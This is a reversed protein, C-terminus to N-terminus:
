PLARYINRQDNVVWPIGEPSVAIAVGGGNSREWTSGTWRWVRYGGETRDTGIAWAQGDGSAGIDRAKGPLKTWTTGRRVYIDSRENVVWPTGRGDVAIRVGAGRAPEWGYRTWRWVGYGGSQRDTGIIWVEGGGAGIDRAKGSLQRWGTGQQVYIDGSDNVVWPTGREDVAIRV